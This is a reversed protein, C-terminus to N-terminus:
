ISRDNLKGYNILKDYVKELDIVDKINHNLIYDLCKKNGQLAGIWNKSDIRTKNTEGVLNRSVNELRNSSLKLKHRAYYYMDTHLISQYNPFDIGLILARSRIFPLDFKTGYFTVLRDFKLMDNICNQVIRKDLDNNLDKKTIVDKYIKDKKHSKISYSLMIGYDADLNSAEIDLHGIREGEPKNKLYCNYHSLYNHGHECKHNAMWILDKKKMRHVPVM